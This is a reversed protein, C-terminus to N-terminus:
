ELSLAGELDCVGGFVMLDKPPLYISVVDGEKVNPQHATQVKFVFGSVNVEYRSVRGLFSVNEVVGRYSNFGREGFLIKEARIALVLNKHPPKEMLTLTSNLFRVSTKDVVEPKIFNSEGIFYASFPNAPKDYITRVDDSQVVRGHKLLVINDGVDMAEEQNPTVHVVTLNMKEAIGRLERRLLVGIKADLANLPEDLLLIKSEVALARALAVRQQMGGSLQHPYADARGSLGVMRLLQSCKDGADHESAGKLRMSYSVNEEVTMHPFLAYNQFFFGTSINREEPPVGTVNVGDILVRGGDPKVLGAIVKLLTTKGCGSPGLVVNYKNAGFTLSVDDM